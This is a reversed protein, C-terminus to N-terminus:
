SLELQALRGHTVAAFVADNRTACQLTLAIGDVDATLEKLRWGPGMDMRGEMVTPQGVSVTGFSQLRRRVGGGLLYALECMAGRVVADSPPKEGRAGLLRRTLEGCDRPSALVGVHLSVVPGKLHTVGGQCDAAVLSRVSGDGSALLRCSRAGLALESIDCLAQFLTPM